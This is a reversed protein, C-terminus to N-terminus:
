TADRIELVIRNQPEARYEGCTELSTPACDGRDSSGRPKRSCFGPVRSPHIPIKLGDQRRKDSYLHTARLVYQCSAPPTSPWKPLKMRNERNGFRERGLVVILSLSAYPCQPLRGASRLFDKRTCPIGVFPTTPHGATLRRASM